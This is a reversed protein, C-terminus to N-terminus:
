AIGPLTPPHDINFTRYLGNLKDYTDGDASLEGTYIAEYRDHEIPIGSKALYETGMFRREANEDSDTLQYIVYADGTASLFASELDPKSQETPFQDRVTEWDERTIGFMGSHNNIEEPEFAMAETNDDYLM